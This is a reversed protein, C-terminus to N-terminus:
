KRDDTVLKKIKESTEQSVELTDGWLHYRINDGKKEALNNLQKILTDYQTQSSTKEKSVIQIQKSEIEFIMKEILLIERFDKTKELREVFRSRQNELRYVHKNLIDEFWLNEAQARIQTYCYKIDANITNRNVNMIEAIKRSSYGFDLHLKFVEDRRQKQNEKSYPGGKKIREVLAMNM